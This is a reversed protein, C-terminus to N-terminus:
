YAIDDTTHHQHCGEVVSLDLSLLGPAKASGESSQCFIIQRKPCIKMNKYFCVENEM